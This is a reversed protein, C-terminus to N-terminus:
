SKSLQLALLGVLASAIAAQYDPSEATLHAGAADLSLNALDFQENKRQSVTQEGAIVAMPDSVMDTLADTLFGM